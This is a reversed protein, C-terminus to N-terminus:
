MRVQNLSKKVTLLTHLVSSSLVSLWFEFAIAIVAMAYLTNNEEPCGCFRGVKADADKRGGRYELFNQKVWAAKELNKRTGGHKRTRGSLGPFIVKEGVQKKVFMPLSTLKGDPVDGWCEVTKPAGYEIVVDATIKAHEIFKGKNENPMADGFEFGLFGDVTFLRAGDM